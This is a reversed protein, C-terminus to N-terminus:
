SPRSDSVKLPIGPLTSGPKVELDTAGVKGKFEPVLKRSGTIERGISVDHEVAIGKPRTHDVVEADPASLMVFGGTTAVFYDTPSLLGRRIAIPQFVVNLRLRLSDSAPSEADLGLLMVCRDREKHSMSALLRPPEIILVPKPKASQDGKRVM